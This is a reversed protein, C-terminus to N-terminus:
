LMVGRGLGLFRAESRRTMIRQDRNVLVIGAREGEPHFDRFTARQKQNQWATVRCL